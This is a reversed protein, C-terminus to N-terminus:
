QTERSIIISKNSKEFFCGSLTKKKFNTSYNIAKILSLIKSGRTLKDRKGLNHIIESFSRFVIEDPQKFFKESIIIKKKIKQFKQIKM